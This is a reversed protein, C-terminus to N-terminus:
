KQQQKKKVQKDATKIAQAKIFDIYTSLAEEDVEIAEVFTDFTYNFEKNNAKLMCYFITITDTLNDEIEGAKKGTLQEFLMLARISQKIEYEKEQLKIIAM